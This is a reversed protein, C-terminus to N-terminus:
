SAKRNKINHKKGFWNKVTCIFIFDFYHNTFSLNVNDCWIYICLCIVVYFSM